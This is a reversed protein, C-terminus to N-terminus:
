KQKKPSPSSIGLAAALDVTDDEPRVYSTNALNAIVLCGSAKHTIKLFNGILEIDHHANNVSTAPTFKDYNGVPVDVYNFFKAFKIKM